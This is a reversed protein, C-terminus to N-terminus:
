AGGKREHLPVFVIKKRYGLAEAIKPGPKQNGSLVLSVLTESLGHARAWTAQGSATRERLQRVLDASTVYDAKM